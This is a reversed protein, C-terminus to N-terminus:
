PCPAEVDLATRLTIEVNERCPGESKIKLDHGCLGAIVEALNESSIESVFPGEGMDMVSIEINDGLQDLCTVGLGHDIDVGQGASRALDASIIRDLERLDLPAYRIADQWENPRNTRDIVETGPLPTTGRDLPFPGAGHRTAYARTMYIIELDTIGANRAIEVMNKAGTHSRTVHPFVGLDMDLQLGQAGEFVVADRDCLADDSMLSVVARYRHLDKAFRGTFGSVDSLVPKLHDPIDTLGLAALRAPVWVSAIERLRSMLDPSTLDQMTLSPGNEQRELTEGFGLGCSGHKDGGRAIEAAQNIAMDWPTTIPSRPDATIQLDRVGKRALDELESFFVMPHSVFFRSLHTAAGRFSGSGIHHFVHHRGDGMTVGHGAQAGGNSRVVTVQRGQEVLQATLADTGLGKGEDGWGAGIIGYVKRIDNGM